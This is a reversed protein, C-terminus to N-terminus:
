NFDSFFILNKIPGSMEYDNRKSKGYHPDGAEVTSIIRPKVMM